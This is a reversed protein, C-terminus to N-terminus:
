GTIYEVARRIYPPVLFDKRPDARHYNERLQKELYFAYEGKMNEIAQYYISAILAKSRKGEDWCCCSILDIIDEHECLSVLEHFPKSNAYAQMIEEFFAKRSRGQSPFNDTILLTCSPNNIAIEYELTKGEGDPPTCVEINNFVRSSDILRNAHSSLSQYEFEELKTGLEYPFCAKWRRKNHGESEKSKKTPDADIICVVKKNIANPSTNSDFQFIKLFHHFTRSDVSVISIHENLLMEEKDLYLAFCPLLLQESVGEVFVLRDAFLMNSKTADLFRKVYIKSAQDEDSESFVRGPYGVRQKGDIDEYLCIISDM